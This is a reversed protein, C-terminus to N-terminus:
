AFIVGVIQCIYGTITLVWAIRNLTPKTVVHSDFKKGNQRITKSEILCILGSFTMGLGFIIFLKSLIMCM